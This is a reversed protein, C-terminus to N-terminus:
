EKGGTKPDTLRSLHEVLERGRAIDAEMGADPRTGMEAMLREGEAIMRALRPLFHEIVYERETGGYGAFVATLDVVIGESRRAEDVMRELVYSPVPRAGREYDTLMRHSIRLKQAFVKQSMGLRRRIARVGAGVRSSRRSMRMGAKM